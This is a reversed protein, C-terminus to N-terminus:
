DRRGRGRSHEEFVHQARMDPNLVQQLREPGGAQVAHRVFLPLGVDLSPESLDPGGVHRRPFPVSGIPAYQLVFNHRQRVAPPHEGVEVQGFELLDFALQPRGLLLGLDGASGLGVEEGAHAM